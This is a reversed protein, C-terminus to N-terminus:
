RAVRARLERPLYDHESRELEKRLRGLARHLAMEVAHTSMELLEGIQKASLDAGYRLAILERDHVDLRELLRALDIRLALDREPAAQAPPEEVTPLRGTVVDDVARRAIGILWATPTGKRPDYSARHRLAREFVDSAADDADPGNGLRYACYAYVRQILPGPNELPDRKSFREGRAIRRRKHLVFKSAAEAVRWLIRVLGCSSFREADMTRNIEFQASKSFLASHLMAQQITKDPSRAIVRNLSKAPQLSV